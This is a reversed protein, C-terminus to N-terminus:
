IVSFDALTTGCRVSAHAAMCYRPPGGHQCQEVQKGGDGQQHPARM